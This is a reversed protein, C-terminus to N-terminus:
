ATESDNSGDLSHKQGNITTTNSDSDLILQLKNFRDRDIKIENILEEPDEGLTEVANSWSTLGNRIMSNLANTEKVPDIMEVKPPTHKYTVGQSNLGYFPLLSLFREAVRDLLLDEFILKQIARIGKHFKNHGMKGSSFNTRSYDGTMAEYPVGTGAAVAHDGKTKFESYGEKTAPNGFSVTKGPPLFEISGPSVKEGIEYGDEDMLSDGPEMDHVFATFCSTIKQKVIEAEELEDLDRLKNVIPTLIPIGRSQGARKEDYLHCIDEVPVRVTNNLGQYDGPHNSYLHYAIVRGQNDREIGDKINDGQLTDVIFDGELVQLSFPIIEGSSRFRILVEGSEFFTHAAVRLLGRLKKRGEFDCQTTEAWNKWASNIRKKKNESNHIFRTRVGIGVTNNVMENVVSTAHPHNRVLDRARNRLTSLAPMIEQDASANSTYIHKHRGSKSAANFKREILEIRKRSTYRKEAAKPSFYEFTKDIFNKKM